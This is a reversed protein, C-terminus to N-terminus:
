SSASGRGGRRRAASGRDTADVAVDARLQEVRRGEGFGEVLQQQEDVLEGGFADGAGCRGRRRGRCGSCRRLGRRGDLAVECGSSLFSAPRSASSRARVRDSAQDAIGASSSVLTSYRFGPSTFFKAITSAAIFSRARGASYSAQCSMTGTARARCFCRDPFDDARDAFGAVEEAV